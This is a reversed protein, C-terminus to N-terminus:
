AIDDKPKRNMAMTWRSVRVTRLRYWETGEGPKWRNPRRTPATLETQRRSIRRRIIVDDAGDQSAFTVHDLRRKLRDTHTVHPGTWSVTTRAIAVVDFSKQPMSLFIRQVNLCNDAHWLFLLVHIRCSSLSLIKTSAYTAWYESSIIVNWFSTYQNCQVPCKPILGRYPM